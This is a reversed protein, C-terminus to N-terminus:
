LGVPRSFGGEEIALSLEWKTAFGLFVSRGCAASRKCKARVDAFRDLLLPPDYEVGEYDACVLYYSSGLKLRDRGSSGRFDGRLARRLFSGCQRALQARGEDDHVGIQGTEAESGRAREGREAEPQQVGVASFCKSVLSYGAETQTEEKDQLRVQKELEEIREEQSYVRIRLAHLQERLDEIEARSMCPCPGAAEGCTSAVLTEAEFVLGAAGCLCLRHHTGCGLGGLDRHM